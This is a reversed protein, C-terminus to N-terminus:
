STVGNSFASTDGLADTLTATILTTASASATSVKFTFSCAGTATPIVTIKGLYIKGEPDGAPSAFFELVYPVNATPATFTGTVTLVTGSLTATSVTPAVINHNAGAALTIGAGNQSPGNAFIRNLRVTNGSGASINVGGLANNSILNGAPISAGGVLTHSGAVNVGYGGNGLAASNSANPGIYNGQVVTGSVGSDIEIGDGANGSIVNRAAPSSGGITAKGAQVEIGTGNGLATKGTSATGIFNGQVVVGTAGAGILVGDNGSGAIVNRSGATTGGVTNNVGDVEIGNGVNGRFFGGGSKNTGVYNGLVVNGSAGSDLLIGDFLNGSVVNRQGSSSGGITNNVGFVEIGSAANGLAGTGAPTTGVFNGEVLTGNVGSQILIGDQANGSIVNRASTVTGGIINNNQVIEIGNGGNALVGIGAANLGIVSSAVLNNTGSGGLLIGDQNNGSVVNVAYVDTGGITNGSGLVEIGNGSNPVAANGTASTGVFNNSVFNASASAGLLIGDAANGSIVNRGGPYDAGIYNDSGLVEVGYLGNGLSANGANNTGIFDQFVNNSEAGSDILVGDQGNASIVNDSAVNINNGAIEVGNGGNGEPHLGAADTGIKNGAVRNSSATNDLLVGDQGNLSIVDGAYIGSANGASEIGNLLNNEITDGSVSEEFTESSLYIGDLANNSINNATGFQNSGGRSEDDIGNGGNGLPAGSVALGINNISVVNDSSTDELLIGDNGNGSILNAQGGNLNPVGGIINSSGDMVIGNGNGLAASGAANTGIFNAGLTEGGANGEVLVGNGSNGSIVNGGIVTNIGHDIIGDQNSLAANGAANTGIYCFAVFTGTVGSDVQIGELRNGSILSFEIAANNAVVEVGSANGQATAGTATTGVFCGNILAGDGEVLIGDGGGFNDIALDSVLCSTGAIDLGAAFATGLAAGNLDVMPAAGGGPGTIGNVGPETSGDIVLDSCQVMPLPSQLNITQVGSSAINFDITDRPPDNNAQEICWRLTGPSGDDLTSTVTYISPLWRDELIELLPRQRWPRRVSRQGAVSSPTFRPLWRRWWPHSHGAM